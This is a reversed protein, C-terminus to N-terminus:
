CIEDEFPSAKYREVTLAGKALAEITKDANNENLSTLLKEVTKTKTIRDFNYSASLLGQLVVPLNKSDAEVTRIMVKLSKEAAGNLYRDKTQLHNVLSRTLNRSFISPFVKRFKDPQQIVEQFLLFGWCKRENSATASFLNELIILSQM